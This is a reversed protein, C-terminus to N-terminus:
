DGGNPELSVFDGGNLRQSLRDGSSNLSQEIISRHDSLLLLIILLVVTTFELHFPIFPHSILKFNEPSPHTIVSHDFSLPCNLEHSKCVFVHLRYMIINYNQM